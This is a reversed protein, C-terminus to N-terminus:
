WRLVHVGCGSGRVPGRADCCAGRHRRQRVGLEAEEHRDIARRLQWVLGETCLGKPPVIVTDEDLPAHHIALAGRAWDQTWFSSAKSVLLRATVLLLTNQTIDDRKAWNLQQAVVRSRM